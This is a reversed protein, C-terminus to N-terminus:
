RTKNLYDVLTIRLKENGFLSGYSMEKYIEKKGCIRRYTRALDETPTLRADSIGDNLYMFGEKNEYPKRKLSEDTYFQFGNNKISLSSKKEKFNQQNLEPLNANIFTGKKPISEVWGQLLLEEYCAV